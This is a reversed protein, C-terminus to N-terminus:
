SDTTVARLLFNSPNRDAGCFVKGLSCKVADACDNNAGLSVDIDLLYTVVQRSAMDFYSCFKVFHDLGKKNGKNCALTVIKSALKM